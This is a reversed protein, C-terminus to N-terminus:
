LLAARFRFALARPGVRCCYIKPTLLVGNVSEVLLLPPSPPFPASVPPPTRKKSDEDSEFRWIIGNVILLRPLSLPPSLPPLSPPCFPASGPPDGLNGYLVPLLVHVSLCWLPPSLPTHQFNKNGTPDLVRPCASEQLFLSFYDGVDGSFFPPHQRLPLFVLSLSPLFFFFSGLCVPPDCFFFGWRFFFPPYIEQLQELLACIPTELPCSSYNWVSPTFFALVVGPAAWLSPSPLLTPPRL